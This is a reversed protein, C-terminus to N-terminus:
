QGGAPDEALLAEFRSLLASDEQIRMIEKNLRDRLDTSRSSTDFRVEVQKRIPTYLDRLEARRAGNKRLRDVTADFEEATTIKTVLDVYEETANLIEEYGTDADASGAAAPAEPSTKDIAAATGTETGGDTAEETSAAAGEKADSDCGILLSGFLITTLLVSFTSRMMM